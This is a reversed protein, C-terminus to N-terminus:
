AKNNLVPGGLDGGTNLSPTKFKSNVVPASSDGGRCLTAFFVVEVTVFEVLNTVKVSDQTTDEGTAGEEQVLVGQFDRGHADRVAGSAPHM